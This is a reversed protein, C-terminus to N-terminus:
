NSPHKGFKPRTTTERDQEQIITLPRQDYLSTKKVNSSTYEMDQDDPALM